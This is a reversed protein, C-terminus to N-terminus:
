PRRASPDRAASVDLPVRQVPGRNGAEDLLAFALTVRGREPLPFDDPDCLSTKGVTLVGQSAALFATPPRSTDLRGAADPAWVAYLLQAASRDPDAGAAARLTAWPTGIGCSAGSWRRAKFVVAQDLKGGTPAVSDRASGTKFTGFVLTSPHREREVIALEYRTDPSLEAEPELEVHTLTGLASDSRKVAVVPGAHQRLVLEHKGQGAPLALRVRANLPAPAGPSPSLLVASPAICSCAVAPEARFLPALGVLALLRLRAM